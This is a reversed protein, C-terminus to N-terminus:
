RGKACLPCGTGKKTRLNIKTRWEHGFECKWWVKHNSSVAYQEPTRNRNREYNWENAIEPSQSLLDTKGKIPLRGCCYPCGTGQGTRLNIVAKWEHGNKCIWWVKKNSSKTFMLPKLEKNKNYNWEKAIEPAMTFLDTKGEIPINGACYPCGTGHKTRNIITAEWEHGNECIWSVKKGSRLTFMQPTIDQNKAYNWEKVLEPALTALDTKGIIPLKGSCYPCSHGRNTRDIIRAKWEHGDSCKWWVRKNSGNTFMQPTLSINKDYNWEAAIAPYTTAIDTKGTIPRKGACYPCGRNRGTRDCISAEYEHGQPCIWWVKKKSGKTYTYPPKDNKSYNWEKAIEPSQSLLDTEGIIPLKGACYPCGNGKKTRNNITSEWEHGEKCVWWVKIESGITFMQPTKNKNKKYNWEKAIEPMVSAVDTKGIIPIKGACYPCGTGHKTRNIITAEWEHNDKCVWWVRKNSYASVDDPDAGQNLSPHWEKAINPFLYKLSNEKTIKKM